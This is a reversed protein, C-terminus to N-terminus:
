FDFDFGDDFGADYGASYTAADGIADGILLGGLAGGLLGAGLGMGFKNKKPPKAAQPAYGGHVPAPYASYGGVALPAAGYGYAQSPEQYKPYGVPPAQYTSASGASASPPPYVAGTSPYPPYVPYATVPENAPSGLKTQPPYSTTAASDLKTQLPYVTAAASDLKTQPSYTTAAAQYAVTDSFSYSLNLVGKTKGSPRRVQYSVKRVAGSSSSGTVLEKIPIRVEGVLRDGLARQAHLTIVLNVGREAADSPVSLRLTSNWTPNRSGARDIQTQQRTRPDCSLAIAAYVEMHSLFNVNKLDDASILTLDLTRFSPYAM